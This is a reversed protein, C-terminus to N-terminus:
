STCQYFFVNLYLLYLTNPPCGIQKIYRYMLYLTNPQSGTQKIYRDMVNLQDSSLGRNLDTNYM